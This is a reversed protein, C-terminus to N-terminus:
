RAEAMEAFWKGTLKLSDVTHAGDLYWPLGNRELTEFRGRWVTQELAQKALASLGKQTVLPPHDLKELLKGALAVALAANEQQYFENPVLKVSGFEQSPAIIQLKVNKEAARERLVAAAAPKQPVTYAPAGDKFIGAKQWAIKELTDGLIQVHEIGLATVGTAVPAEIVNTADYAGGIGVEFVAADVRESLFVHFALITLFRFYNTRAVWTEATIPTDKQLGLADWVEFFYKAFDLEGIPESNIVIRERVTVLHPSTFLGIRSPVGASRRAHNLIANAFACVSGKGKTGAVHIITLRKLDSVQMVTLLAPLVRCVKM